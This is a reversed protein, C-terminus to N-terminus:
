PDLKRQYIQMIFIIPPNYYFNSIKVSFESLKFLKYVKITAVTDLSRLQAQQTLNLKQKKKRFNMAVLHLGNKSIQIKRTETTSKLWVQNKKYIFTTKLLKLDKCSSLSILSYTKNVSSIEQVSVQSSTFEIITFIVYLIKKSFCVGLCLKFFIAFPEICHITDYLHTERLCQM